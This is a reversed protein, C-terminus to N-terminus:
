QAELNPQAVSEAGTETRDEKLLPAEADDTTLVVPEEEEQFNELTKSDDLQEQIEENPAETERVIEISDVEKREDEKKEKESAGNSTAVTRIEQNLEDYFGHTEIKVKTGNEKSSTSVGNKGSKFNADLSQEGSSDYASTPESFNRRERREDDELYDEVTDYHESNDGRLVSDKGFKNVDFNETPTKSASTSDRSDEDNIMTILANEGSDEDNKKEVLLEEPVIKIINAFLPDKKMMKQYLIVFRPKPFERPFESLDPLHNKQCMDELLELNNESLYNLIFNYTESRSICKGFGPPLLYQLDEANNKHFVNRVMNHTLFTDELSECLLIIALGYKKWGEAGQEMAASWLCNRLLRSAFQGSYQVEVFFPLPFGKKFSLSGTLNWEVAKQIVRVWAVLAEDAMNKRACSYLYCVHLCMFGERTKMSDKYQDYLKIIHPFFGSFALSVSFFQILKEDGYKQMLTQYFQEDKTMWDFTRAAITLNLNHPHQAIQGVFRFSATYQAMKYLPFDKGFLDSRDYGCWRDDYYYNWALLKDGDEFSFAGLKVFQVLYEIFLSCPTDMDCKPDLLLKSMAGTDKESVVKLGFCFVGQAKLGFARQAESLIYNSTNNAAQPEFQEFVKQIFRRISIDMNKKEPMVTGFNELLLKFHWLFCNPIDDLKAMLDFLRAVHKSRTTPFYATQLILLPLELDPSSKICKGFLPIWDQDPRMSFLNKWADGDPPYQKKICYQAAYKLLKEMFSQGLRRHVEDLLNKMDIQANFKAFGHLKLILLDEEAIKPNCTWHYHQLRMETISKTRLLRESLEQIGAPSKIDLTSGNYSVKAKKKVMEEDRHQKIEYTSATSYSFSRKYM